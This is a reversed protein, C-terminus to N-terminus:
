GAPQILITTRRNLAEKVGEGTQIALDREGRWDMQVVGPDIGQAVLADRVVRARRESLPQNYSETGSTDTHGVIIVHSHGNRASYAAAAQIVSHAAPTLNDRDFPFYVV